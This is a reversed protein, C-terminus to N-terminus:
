QSTMETTLKDIIDVWSMYCYHVPTINPLIGAQIDPSNVIIWIPINKKSKKLLELHM